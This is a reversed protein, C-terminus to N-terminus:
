FFFKLAMQINRPDRTSTITGSTGQTATTVVEGPSSLNIGTAFPGPGFPGDSFGFWQTHNFINFFEARYQLSFRESFKFTKFISFDFNTVGPGRLFNRGTNGLQGNQPRAFAVPNIWRRSAEDKLYIPGGIYDARVGGNGTGLTGPNGNAAVTFPLGSWVRTVGSLTWSDVFAGALKNNKLKSSFKPLNYIYDFSFTHTRDFGAVARERRRDFAYGLTGNPGTDDDAEDIAKGFTYNANFTFNSGFRRSLRTQLANYNSNAAFEIFTIGTYGLYPRIANPDAPNLASGLPLTNIDRQYMLHRAANGIYSIDLGIQGPLQQQIGFSWSYITPIKGNSDIAVLGVPFNRNNPDGALGPSLDSLRGGTLTPTYLLPPNGLGEFNSNNQRVREYFIGFGGRVATRGNGFIDWALGLRPSFNNFRGKVGGKPAGDGELVLGNLSDGSGLVIAGNEVRVARSPDYRDALFYGQLYKGHTYTPGLYVWRLGYELTFRSSVKWSDQGYLEVGYFKFNGFFKGNSQTATTYNGLLMNAFASGTDRLNSGGPAFSLNIADTWSPQQGNRNTNFLGGTKFTHVGRAITLNDAWTFQRGESEWQNAFNSVQCDGIGCNFQPFKNRLNAQTQLFLEQFTFGLQERDYSSQDVSSPVDVLQTLHNYSFIFENTISPSIVNILNWSWSSGPKQRFQPFNPFANASFFGLGQEERQSDDVWRFFFNANPNINYDVRVVEQRKKLRYSDQAFIQVFEPSGPVALGRSRDLKNLVTIFAPANADWESKPVINNPYPEGTTINGAADREITGPRFITGVVCPMSTGRYTCGKLPEADPRLLRRFDGNLLDPHAANFFAPGNPRTGRTAEMNFFFFLKPDTRSSLKWLPIPGGINGGFQNLRLKQKEAQLAGRADLADNRLFEYLTGHFRKGGSKTTASILVGPNRGHEANFNSTQVKFEGIADLSMQTFQGDNAGVDTNVAGDLFVNNMTDRQGNVNFGMTTNFALNFDSNTNSTVGPLTRLLSRFDRGNTSIGTVQESSIVFSKQATATEVLEQGAAVTVISTLDGVELNLTGLSLIQYADLVLGKRELSKFGTAEAKLTYTGRALPMLKFSGDPESMAERVVIGKTEDIAAIKVSTVANGQADIISGQIAGSQAFATASMVSASLTLLVLLRKM